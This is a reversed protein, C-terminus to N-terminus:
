RDAISNGLRPACDDFTFGANGRNGLKICLWEGRMKGTFDFAEIDFIVDGTLFGAMHIGKDM